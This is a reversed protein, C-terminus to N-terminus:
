KLIKEKIIEPVKYLMYVYQDNEMRYNQLEVRANMRSKEYIEFNPNKSIGMISDIEDQKLKIEEKTLNKLKSVSEQLKQYQGVKVITSEMRQLQEKTFKSEGDLCSTYTVILSTIQENSFLGNKLYFELIDMKKDIMDYRKYFPDIDSYEMRQFSRNWMDLISYIGYCKFDLDIPYNKVIYEMLELAFNQPNLSLNSAINEKRKHDIGTVNEKLYTFTNISSIDFPKNLKKNTSALILLKLTKLANIDTQKALYIGLKNLNSLDETVDNLIDIGSRVYYKM